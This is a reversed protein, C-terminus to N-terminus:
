ERGGTKLWYDLTGLREKRVHTPNYGLNDVFFSDIAEKTAKTWKGTFMEAEVADSIPTIAAVPVDNCLLISAGNEFSVQVAMSGIRTVKM